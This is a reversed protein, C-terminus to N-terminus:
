WGQEEAFKQFTYFEKRSIQRWSWVIIGPLDPYEAALDDLWPKLHNEDRAGYAHTSPVIIGAGRQQWQRYSRRIDTLTFNYIQNSSEGWKLFERWPFDPIGKPMGYSTITLDHRETMVNMLEAMLKRAQLAADLPKIVAQRYEREPDPVVGCCIGNTLEDSVRFASAFTHERGAKPYGWLRVEIGYQALAESYAALSEQNRLADEWCFLLGVGKIRHDRCKHALQTPTGHIPKSLVRIYVHLGRISM